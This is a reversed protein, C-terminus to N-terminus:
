LAIFWEVGKTMVAKYTVFALVVTVSFLVAFAVLPTRLLFIGLAVIVGALAMGGLTMLLVNMNNKIAAQENDWELKPKALDILLGLYNLFVAGPITLAVGGLLILVPVGLIIQVPIIILLISPFIVMFGSAAKANLQARYPMPLYKMIFFNRGERSISTATITTMGSIFFGLACMAVMFIAAVRPENFDILALLEGLADGEVTVIMTYALSGALIVPVIIASLVCNIFATPSRMLLKMEKGLYSRFAGRGQSQQLIEDKTMKKATSGSESLGIVGRFYLMRALVFFVVLALGTVGINIAQNLFLNGSGALARAAAVNNAFVINMTDFVVPAGMLMDYVADADIMLFQTYFMSFGVGLFMAFIGIVLSYRDPNRFVKLFAVLVMCLVTSYVLPVIPLTVLTILSNVALGGAGTFPLLAAFVPIVIILAILYEFLLAVAFKAGIVIEPKVPLPLLYEVDKSFYFIAPAAMMSLMFIVLAGTNLALAVGVDLHGSAAFIAFLGGAVQFILISMFVVLFALSVVLVPGLWKNSKGGVQMNFVSGVTTKLFIWTLTRWKRM